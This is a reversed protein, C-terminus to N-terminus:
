MLSVLLADKVKGMGYDKTNFWGPPYQRITFAKSGENIFLSLSAM